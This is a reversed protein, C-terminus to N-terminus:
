LAFTVIESSETKAEEIIGPRLPEAAWLTVKYAGAKSPFERLRKFGAGLLYPYVRSQNPVTTLLLTGSNLNDVKDVLTSYKDDDESSHGNVNGSAVRRLAVADEVSRLEGAGDFEVFACCALGRFADEGGEIVHGINEGTIVVTKQNAKAQRVRPRKTAARRIAMNGKEKERV